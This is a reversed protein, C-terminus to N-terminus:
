ALSDRLFRAVDPAFRFNDARGYNYMEPQLRLIEASSAYRSIYQEFDVERLMSVVSELTARKITNDSLNDLTAGLISLLTFSCALGHPMGYHLTLPYSISHAIATRTQSIAMGALLSAEQMRRRQEVEAPHRLARPLAGTILQLAQLALAESVPTSNRNWLSELAHSTADLGTYLTQDHPLSLTLEVDLICCDPYLQNGTVSNKRGALHDWVTAFPTVESGTGATTPIAILGMRRQWDQEWGERFCQHLRRQLTTETSVALIKGADLASGGGLAIIGTLSEQAFTAAIADLDDLEPNPSIQDYVLLCSNGIEKDFIARMRETVGRRTFGPSTVLLWKGDPALLTPLQNLAGDGSVVRVPNHFTWQRSEDATM